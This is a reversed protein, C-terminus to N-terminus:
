RRARPVEVKCQNLFKFKDQSCGEKLGTGWFGFMLLFFGIFIGVTLIEVLSNKDQVQWLEKISM